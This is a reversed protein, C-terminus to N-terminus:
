PMLRTISVGYGPITVTMRATPTVGAWAPGSTVSTNADVQTQSAAYFLSYNSLDMVITRPKGAGNNDTSAAVARNVVMVTLQGSANVTALTEIESSDTNTTSLLSQTGTSSSSFANALARDVWYGLYPTGNTDVEGYQKTGTYTWHYLAQNGAKALQAYVYPRWAAFFPSIGRTDAVYTKTPTCSSMGSSLPYDANLNTETVWVPVSALDNRVALEQRLYAINSVFDPVSGFLKADTYAQDCGGYLHTGIADVQAKVGGSAASSVFAPLYLMPDGAEGTGLGYDSLELAVIKIAPDVALMAPVVTNYLKIYEPVTMTTLNFENYIGWWIIAHSSASKYSVGGWVFGGKNYYRVLNAAYDAFDQLHNTVDLNGSSDCMWTPASAIQFQPSNDGSALVPQVTADLLTFDWSTSALSSAKMPIADGIAQLRIHQAGLATLQAEQAATTTTGFLQPTYASIQFSTAMTQKLVGGLGQSTDVAASPKVVPAVALTFSATVTQTGVTVTLTPTYTGAATASGATLTWTGSASGSIAAYSSSLGGPLGSLVVSGSGTAGTVTVGLTAPVGDQAAVVSSASLAVTLKSTTEPTSSSLCGAVLLLSASFLAM